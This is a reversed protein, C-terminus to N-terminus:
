KHGHDHKATHNYNRQRISSQQMYGILNVTTIMKIFLHEINRKFWWHLKLIYKQPEMFCYNTWADSLFKRAFISLLLAQVLSVILRWIQLSQNHWGICQYLIAHDINHKFKCQCRNMNCPWSKIVVFWRIISIIISHINIMLSYYFLIKWQIIIRINLALRNDYFLLKMM